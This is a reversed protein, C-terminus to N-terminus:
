NNNDIFNKKIIFYGVTICILDVVAIGITLFLKDESVIEDINQVNEFVPNTDLDDDWYIMDGRQRGVFVITKVDKTDVISYRFRLAGELMAYRYKEAERIDTDTDDMWYASANTLWTYGGYDVQSFGEYEPARVYDAIGCEKATPICILFRQDLGLLESNEADGIFVADCLPAGSTSGVSSWNWETISFHLEQVTRRVVPSAFEAGTESDRADSLEDMKFCAAILKGENESHVKGDEVWVVDKLADNVDGAGFMAKFSVLVFFGLVCLLISAKIKGWM